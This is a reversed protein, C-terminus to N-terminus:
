NRGGSLRAVVADAVIRYGDGNMHPPGLVSTGPVSYLSLPDDHSAFIPQVDIVPLGLEEAIELVRVRVRDDRPAWGFGEDFTWVAPMYVFYLDGGWAGVRERALRLIREFLAFDPAERAQPSAPPRLLASVTTRLKRLALIRGIRELPTGRQEELRDVVNREPDGAGSAFLELLLRDIAPQRDVLSQRFGPELYRMLLPTRKSIGLDFWWLDNEFYFWVVRRPRLTPGYESLVALEHLPTHGGMGLNVTTPFHERIRAGLAQESPVCEGIAFSDGVLVVDVPARDWLGPPNRFGHEDSQYIAYQGLENCLVVTKRSIGGLPLIERGDARLRARYVGQEDPEALAAPITRSVADVGRERLDAVVELRSRLDWPEGRRSAEDIADLGPDSRLARLALEAVYLMAVSAIGAVILGLLLERGRSGGRAGSGDTEAVDGGSDGTRTSQM